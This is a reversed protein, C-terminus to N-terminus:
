TTKADTGRSVRLINSGQQLEIKRVIKYLREEVRYDLDLFQVSVYEISGRRGGRGPQKRVVRGKLGYFIREHELYMNIEQGAKYELTMDHAFRVGTGSINVIELTEKQSGYLTLDHTKSPRVRFAFRLNHQKEKTPNSLFVAGVKESSSLRYDDVIRFIKGSIGVRTGDKNNVCTVEIIRGKFSPLIPPTTQSIIMVKDDLEYVQSRRVDLGREQEDANLVCDVNMGPKIYAKKESM